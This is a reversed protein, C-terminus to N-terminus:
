RAKSSVMTEKKVEIGKKIINAVQLAGPRWEPLHIWASEIAKIMYKEFIGESNYIEDPFKPRQGAKVLDYIEKHGFGEWVEKKVLLFYLVNGLSYVDVKETEEKYFYEEPSRYEGGNKGVLFGCRENTKSNWTLFRVRNFDSLKYYGDQYIFQDTKIDTHAMTARGQLDFHHAHHVSMSVNYAIEMIHLKFEETEQPSKGTDISKDVDDVDSADFISLLDGRDAYDFIATNSCSAYLDVVLPSNRLEEFSIADRRHRDHNRLDFSKEKNRLSRLTKMARKTIGDHADRIMWVHRFAGNNILRTQERRHNVTGDIVETKNSSHSPIRYIQQWGGSAEHIQNCTHHYALQWSPDIPKCSGKFMSDPAALQRANKRSLPIYKSRLEWAGKEPLSFSLSTSSKFPGISGPSFAFQYTHNKDTLRIVRPGLSPFNTRHIFQQRSALSKIEYRDFIQGNVARPNNEESRINYDGSRVFRFDRKTKRVQRLVNHYGSLSVSSMFHITSPLLLLSSTGVIVIMAQSSKRLSLFRVVWRQWSLSLTSKTSKKTTVSTATILSPSVNDNLACYGSNSCAHARRSNSNGYHM